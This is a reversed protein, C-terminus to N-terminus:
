VSPGVSIYLTDNFDGKHLPITGDSTEIDIILDARNAGAAQLSVADTGDTSTDLVLPSLSGWRATATYDLKDLFTGDVTTPLAGVLQLGGNASQLSLVAPYNCMTDAYNLSASWAKPTANTPDVLETVTLQASAFSANGLNVANADSMRCIQPATGSITLENSASDAAKVAANSALITFLAASLIYLQQRKM